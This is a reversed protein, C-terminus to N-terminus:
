SPGRWDRLRVVRGGVAAAPLAEPGPVAASAEDVFRRTYLRHYLGSM